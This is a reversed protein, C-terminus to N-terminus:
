AKRDKKLFPMLHTVISPDEKDAAWVHGCECRYYNVPADVSTQKLHRPEQHGCAPCPQTPMRPALM